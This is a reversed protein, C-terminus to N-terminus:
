HISASVAVALMPLCGLVLFLSVSVRDLIRMTPSFM